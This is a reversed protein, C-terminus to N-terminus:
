NVTQKNFWNYLDQLLETPLLHALPRDGENSLFCSSPMLTRVCSRRTKNNFKKDAVALLQAVRYNLQLINQLFQSFGEHATHIFTCNVKAVRMQFASWSLNEVMYIRFSRQWSIYWMSKSSMLSGSDVLIRQPGCSFCFLSFRSWFRSGSVTFVQM